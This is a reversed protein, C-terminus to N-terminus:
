LCNVNAGTRVGYLDTRTTGNQVGGSVQELEEDSLDQMTGVQPQAPLVLHLTTPTDEFVHVTIGEPLIIGMEKLAGKPQSLLRQRFADDTMARAVIQEPLSPPQSM